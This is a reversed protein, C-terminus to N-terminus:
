NKDALILLFSDSLSVTITCLRTFGLTHCWSCTFADFLVSAEAAGNM